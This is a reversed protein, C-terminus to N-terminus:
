RGSPKDRSPAFGSPNHADPCAANCATAIQQVRYLARLATREAKFAQLLGIHRNLSYTWHGCRGRAREGRLAKALRKVILWRGAISLDRIDEPGIPILRPLLVERRVMRTEYGQSEASRNEGSAIWRNQPLDIASQRLNLRASCGSQFDSGSNMALHLAQYNM